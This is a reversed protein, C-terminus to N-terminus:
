AYTHSGSAMRNRNSEFARAEGPMARRMRRERRIWQSGDSFWFRGERTENGAGLNMTELFVFTEGTVVDVMHDGRRMRLMGRNIGVSDWGALWSQWESEDHPAARPFGARCADRGACYQEWQRETFHTPVESKM